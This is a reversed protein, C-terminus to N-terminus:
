GVQSAAPSISWPTSCNASCTLTALPLDQRYAPKHPQALIHLTPSSFNRTNNTPPARAVPRRPRGGADDIEAILSEMNTLTPATPSCKKLQPTRCCAAYRANSAPASPNTIRILYSDTIPTSSNYGPIREDLLRSRLVLQCSRPAMQPVSTPSLSLSITKQPSRDASIRASSAFASTTPPLTKVIRPDRCSLNILYPDKITHVSQTVEDFICTINATRIGKPIVWLM